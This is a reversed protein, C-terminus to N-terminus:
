GLLGLISGNLLNAVDCLLNGLLNGPGSVANINLVVQNLNVQLGLLNLSLPGLNLHLIACIAALRATTRGDAGLADPATSRASASSGTSTKLPVTVAQDTVVGGTHGAGQSVVGSLTGIAVLGSGQQAFRQINLMGTFAGHGQQPTGTVPIADLPTSISGTFAGLLNNLATALADPSAARPAAGAPSAPSQSAARALLGGPNLLNTVACLLNGLLNGLGPIAKIVLVVQSLNVQLGLLNLSTPALNLNLISCSVAVRAGNVAALGGDPAFAGTGSGTVPTTSTVTGTPTVTETPTVTGTPTVPQTATTSVPITVPADTVSKGAGTAGTIKGIAVVQGNQNAFRQITLLGVFANTASTAPGDVRESALGRPLGGTVAGTTGTVPVLAFPSNVTLPRLLALISNLLGALGGLPLGPNLLNTIACLLNGLLNGAGPVASINLHVQNLTVVLGLLNLNLPGLVLNLIGCSIAPVAPAEARSAPIAAGSGGTSGSSSAASPATVPISVPANIVTKFVKGSPNGKSLIGNLLGTAMLTGNQDTFSKIDLLGTFTGKAHGHGQSYTGSVPIASLTSAGTNGTSTSSSGAAQQGAAARVGNSSPAVLLTLMGLTLAFAILRSKM